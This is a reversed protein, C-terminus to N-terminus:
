LEVYVQYFSVVLAFLFTFTMVAWAFVQYNRKLKLALRSYSTFNMTPMPTVLVKIFQRACFCFLLVSLFSLLLILM